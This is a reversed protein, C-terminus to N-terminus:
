ECLSFKDDRFLYHVNEATAFRGTNKDVDGVYFLQTGDPLRPRYTEGDGRYVLTDVESGDVWGTVVLGNMASSIVPAKHICTDTM